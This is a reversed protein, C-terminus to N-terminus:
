VEYSPPPDMNSNVQYQVQPSQNKHPILPSPVHQSTLEGMRHNDLSSAPQSMSVELKELAQVHIQNTWSQNQISEQQQKILSSMMTELFSISQHIPTNTPGQPIIGQNM